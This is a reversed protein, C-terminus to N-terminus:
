VLRSIGFVENKKSPELLMFQLCNKNKEIGSLALAFKEEVDLFNVHLLIGYQLSSIRYDGM